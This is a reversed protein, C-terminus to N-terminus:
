VGPMDMNRPAYPEKVSSCPCPALPLIPCRCKRNSPAKSLSGWCPAPVWVRVPILLKSPEYDAM